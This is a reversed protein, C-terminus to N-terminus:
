NWADRGSSIVQFNNDAGLPPGRDAGMQMGQDLVIIPRPILRGLGQEVTQGAVGPIRIGRKSGEGVRLQASQVRRLEGAEQGTRPLALLLVHGARRTLAAHGVETGLEAHIGAQREICSAQAHQGAIM